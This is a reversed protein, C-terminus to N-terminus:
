KGRAIRVMEQAERICEDMLKQENGAVKANAEEAAKVAGDVWEKGIRKSIIELAAPQAADRFMKQEDASPHHIKMGKAEMAKLAAADSAGTIGAHVVCFAQAGKVLAEQQAKSLSQYKDENIFVVLPGYLHGDLVMSTQVEYFKSDHINAIPCEMGDVVGQQLAMYLESYSIPTPTAGLGRTMAMHAPNEMVRIKLGKMDAPTRLEAGKATFHRYGHEAIALIRIGTKKLFEDSLHKVFDSKLFEWGAANSSILYPIDFVMTQPFFNAAPGSTLTGMDITGMQIGELAEAEGGLKSAHYFVLEVEGNTAKKVMDTYVDAACVTRNEPTDPGSNAVKLTIKAEAAVAGTLLM